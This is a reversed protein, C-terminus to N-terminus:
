QNDSDPNNGRRDERRRGDSGSRAAHYFAIPQGRRHWSFEAIWSSLALFAARRPFRLRAWCDLENDTATTASAPVPSQLRSRSHHGRACARARAQAHAEMRRALRSAIASTIAAITAAVAPDVLESGDFFPTYRGLSGRHQSDLDNSGTATATGAPRAPAPASANDAGDSAAPAPRPSDEREATSHRWGGSDQVADDHFEADEDGDDDGGDNEFEDGEDGDSDADSEEGQYRDNADADADGEEDDHDDDTDVSSAESGSVSGDWRSQKYLDSADQDIQRALEALVAELGGDRTSAGALVLLAAGVHYDTDHRVELEGLGQRNLGHGDDRLRLCPLHVLARALAAVTRGHRLPVNCSQDLEALLQCPRAAPSSSGSSSKVLLDAFASVFDDDILNDRLELRRLAPLAPLAAVIADVGCTHIGNSCVDIDALRPVVGGGGEAIRSFLARAGLPGLQTERLCLKELLPVHHLAAALAAGGVHTLPNGELLLIRLSPMFRLARAVDAAARARLNCHSLDLFVLEPAARLSAALQAHGPKTFANRSAGLERLFPTAGAKV